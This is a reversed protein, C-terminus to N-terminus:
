GLKLVLERGQQPKKPVANSINKGEDYKHVRRTKTQHM